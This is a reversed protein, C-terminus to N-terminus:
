IVMRASRRHHGCPASSSSRNTPKLTLNLFYATEEITNTGHTIVIGDAKDADFINHITRVLDLWDKDVLAHSPLRRFSLEQVDAIDETRYSSSLEGDNLRM